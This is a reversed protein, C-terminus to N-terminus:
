SADRLAEHVAERVLKSPHRELAELDARIPSAELDGVLTIATAALWADLHRVLRALAEDFSLDSSGFLTQSRTHVESWTRAELLPLLWERHRTSLANSL